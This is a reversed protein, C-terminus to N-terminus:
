ADGGTRRSAANRPEPDARPAVRAAMEVLRAAIEDPTLVEDVTGTAAAERPMGPVVCSAEEQALVVAGAQKLRRLGAAGDNGMGTLVVAVVTGRRARALSEFLFTASPRFGGVPEESSLEIRGESSLGLHRDDPALYVTRPRLAEGAEALKVRVDCAANLWEALGEVFGPAIHQVVLIPLPFERPLAALIGHLVAPGGTSAAIAVAYPPPWSAPAPRPAPRKVEPASRAWRRVVKVDAMAKAMAVFQAQRGDFHPSGPDDPKAVVMLAGARLASMALEVDKGSSSSSVIVIPTPAQVMIEKTAELGDLLPMHVDMTILDPRLRRALEVAELGNKAQGVVRVDPDSELIAVLLERVTVSDEAVLVRIM